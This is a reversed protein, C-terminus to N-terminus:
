FLLVVLLAVLLALGPIATTFALQRHASDSESASLGRADWAPSRTRWVGFIGADGRAMARQRLPVGIWDALADASEGVLRTYDTTRAIPRDEGLMILEGTRLRLVYVKVITTLGLTTYVEERWEVCELQAPQLTGNWAAPKTLYSRAAPLQLDTGQESIVVRWRVKVLAEKWVLHVFPAIFAATALVILAGTRDGSMLLDIAFVSLGSLLCGLLVLLFWAGLRSLLGARFVLPHASAAGTM